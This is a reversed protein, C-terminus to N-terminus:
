KCNEKQNRNEKQNTQQTQGRNEKQNRSEKQNRNDNPMPVGGKVQKLVTTNQGSRRFNNVLSPFIITSLGQCGQYVLDAFCLLSIADAEGGALPLSTLLTTILGGCPHNTTARIGHM